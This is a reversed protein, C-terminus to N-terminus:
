GNPRGATGLAPWAHCQGPVQVAPCSMLSLPAPAKSAATWQAVMEAALRLLLRSGGAGLAGVGGVVGRGLSFGGFGRSGGVGGMGEAGRVGWLSHGLRSRVSPTRGAVGRSRRLAGRDGLSAPADGPCDGQDGWLSWPGPPGEESEM